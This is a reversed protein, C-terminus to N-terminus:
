SIPWVNTEFEVAEESVPYYNPYDNLRNNVERIRRVEMPIKPLFTLMKTVQTM